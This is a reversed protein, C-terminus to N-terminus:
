ANHKNAALMGIFEAHSHAGIEYDMSCYSTALISTCSFCPVLLFFCRPHFLYFVEDSVVKVVEPAKMGSMEGTIELLRGIGSEIENVIEFKVIEFKVIFVTYRCHLVTKYMGAYM